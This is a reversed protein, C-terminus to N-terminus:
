STLEIVKKRSREGAVIRVNSKSIGFHKAIKKVIEANAEGKLPRAIVGIEMHDGKVEIFDKHFSVSVKYFM